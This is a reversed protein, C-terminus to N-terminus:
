VDMRIREDLDFKKSKLVAETYSDISNWNNESNLIVDCFYEVICIGVKVELNRKELSWRECHFFTHEAYNIAMDDYICNLRTMKGM